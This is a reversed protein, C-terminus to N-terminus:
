FTGGIQDATFQIHVDDFPLQHGDQYILQTDISKHANVHQIQERNFGADLALKNALSRVGHFVPPNDGTFGAYIRSEAFMEVLRRPAVQAYHDKTKGIRKVKPTHSIVYPCAGNKLSAERAKQLLQRLLDYSGVNWQLRSAKAEGFRSLSKGIVKKLLNDEMNDSLKLSCIDSERMFTTLSLGMAIQLCEYGLVGAANYISWFMTLTLRQSKRKPTAATYLRPRDDNTTFPNYAMKPLLDRGMLYNFFRRFEAHRAKQQHPTLTDWWLMIDQRELTTLSKPLAECFRTLHHMRNNCWSSKSVLDPSTLERWAIFDGVYAAMTGKTTQRVAPSVHNDAMSNNHAAIKNATEVDAAQFTKKSGDRRVYLWYAPRKKPDTYLNDVLQIGDFYRPKKPRAM